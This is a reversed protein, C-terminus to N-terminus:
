PKPKTIVRMQSFESKHTGGANKELAESLAKLYTGAPEAFPRIKSFLPKESSTVAVWEFGFPPGIEWTSGGADPDGIIIRKSKSVQKKFDGEEPYLHYVEGALTYYDVTIYSAFAPAQIKIRLLEGEIFADSATGPAVGLEGIDLKEAFLLKEYHQVAVCIHEPKTKLKLVVKYSPVIKKALIVLNKAKSMSPITGAIAVVGKSSIVASVSSCAVKELDENILAIAVEPPISEVAPTTAAPCNMDTRVRIAMNKPNSGLVKLALAAAEKKAEESPVKGIIWVEGGPSESVRLRWCSHEAFKTELAIAKSAAWSTSSAGLGM